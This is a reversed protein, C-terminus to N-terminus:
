VIRGLVNTECDYRPDKVSSSVGANDALHITADARNVAHHALDSNLIDGVVLEVGEHSIPRLNTNDADTISTVEWLDSREGISLNDVVRISHGNASMIHRVLNTSIFGCGGITVSNM